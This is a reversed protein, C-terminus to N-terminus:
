DARKQGVGLEWAGDALSPDTRLTPRVGIENLARALIQAPAPLNSPDKVQLWIGVVPPTTMSRSIGVDEVKWGAEGLASVLDATFTHIEADNILSRVKVTQPPNQRLFVVFRNRNEGLLRRPKQKEELIQVRTREAELAAKTEALKTSQDRQVEESKKLKTQSSDVTQELHADKERRLKEIRTGMYQEAFVGIVLGLGTLGAAAILLWNRWTQLNEISNWDWMATDRRCDVM